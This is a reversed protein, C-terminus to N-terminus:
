KRATTYPLEGHRTMGLEERAIKEIYASDSLAAKEQKLEENEAQAASLRAEAAAQNEALQGLHVQQSVLVFAFYGIIIAMLPVFFDFRRKRKRGEMQVGEEEGQQLM